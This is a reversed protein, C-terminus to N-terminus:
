ANVLKDMQNNIVEIELLHPRINKEIDDYDSYSTIEKIRLNLEEREKYLAVHKEASERTKFWPSSETVPEDLYVDYAIRFGGDSEYIDFQAATDSEDKRKTKRTPRKLVGTGHFIKYNYRGM